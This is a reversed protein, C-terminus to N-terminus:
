GKRAWDGIGAWRHVTAGASIANRTTTMPRFQAGISSELHEERKFFGEGEGSRGHRGQGDAGGRGHSQEEM